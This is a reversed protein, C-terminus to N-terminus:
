TTQNQETAKKILAEIDKKYQRRDEAPIDAWILMKNIRNLAKQLMDLMEPAAAILRFNAATESELDEQNEETAEDYISQTCIVKDGAMISTDSWNHKVIEWEGPTHKTEM